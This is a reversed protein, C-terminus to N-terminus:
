EHREAGCDALVVYVVLTRLLFISVYVFSSTKAGYVITLPVWVIFRLAVDFAFLFM